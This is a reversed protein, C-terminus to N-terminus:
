RTWLLGAARAATLYASLDRNCLESPAAGAHRDRYWSATIRLTAAFDWVPRWGLVDAAKTVDLHLLGAEHPAAPNTRDEQRGPWEGLFADVLAGVPRASEGRPGFNFGERLRASQPALEPQRLCAGLWLYGALPELVHQWPRTAHRNRIVAPQGAELARVCDPIIRDASFDGGGIVNGARGSAIAGEGHAPYYSRRWSSVLLETMGKSASYPDHGGMPEDERYGEPRERNEYCKDSTVVVVAASPAEARVAELLHATGLVNIAITEIPQAYSLRVLPQAALHLVIEPKFDRVAARLTNRDRVDGFQSRFRGGLGLWDHLPQDAQPALAFGRVEAGLSLLWHALWAGKFGTQGTLLVRRGNYAGGFM